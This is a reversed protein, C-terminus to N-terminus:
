RSLAEDLWALYERWPLVTAFDLDFPNPAECVVLCRAAPHDGRFARLGSLADKGVTRKSKIEIAALVRRNKEVVLDVEAGHNTLWYHASAEAGSYSILRLTELVIFHEFLKGRLTADIEGTLRQNLANLVGLDFFYVKPHRALRRRASKAYTELRFALLTDELIEFYSQVTRAPLAVDSAIATYNLVEGSQAAAVDLFRSFGGINRSLGEAQVEERLYTSAYARLIGRRTEDDDAIAVPPLTGFRLAQTLDFAKGMELFTLPHLHRIAARGALLNAGGRKLKRASSGTLVFRVRRSEILGHVENLLEPIRQVEDVFITQVDGGDIQHEAERRFQSPDKLFRLYDDSRLLDVTWTSKADLLSRVLTSKGTQRPGLLLLSQKKPAQFRRQFM